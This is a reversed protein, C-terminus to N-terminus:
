RSFYYNFGFNFSLSSVNLFEFSNNKVVTESNTGKTTEKEATYGIINGLNAELGLKSTPFFLIGPAIGVMTTSTKPGESEVTITTNTTTNEVKSTLDSKGGLMSINLDTIFFFSDGEGLPMAYRGFVGFGTRSYKNTVTTKTNTGNTISESKGSTYNLMLGAGINDAFFYGGRPSFHFESSKPNDTTVSVSGATSKTTGKNSWFGVSGGVFAGQGVQAFTQASLAMLGALLCLSLYKKM